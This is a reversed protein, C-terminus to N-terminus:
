IYEHDIVITWHIADGFQNAKDIADVITDLESTDIYNLNLIFSPEGEKKVDTWGKMTTNALMNFQGRPKNLM